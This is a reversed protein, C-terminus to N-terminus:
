NLNKENNIKYYKENITRLTRKKLEDVSKEIMLYKKKNTELNNLV